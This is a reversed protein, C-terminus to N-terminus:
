CALNLIDLDSEQDSLEEEVEEFYSRSRREVPHEQELPKTEYRVNNRYRSASEHEAQQAKIRKKKREFRKDQIRKDRKM